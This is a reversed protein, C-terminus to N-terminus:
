NKENFELTKADPNAKDEGTDLSNKSEEEVEADDNKKAEQKSGDQVKDATHLKRLEENEKALAHIKGELQNNQKRLLIVQETLKMVFEKHEARKKRASMAAKKRNAALKDLTNRLSGRGDQHALDYPAYMNPSPLASHPRYTYDDVRSKKETHQLGNEDENRTGDSGISENEYTQTM